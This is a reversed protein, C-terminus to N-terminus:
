LYFVRGLRVGAGAVRKLIIIMPPLSYFEAEIHKYRARLYSRSCAAWRLPPAVRRTTMSDAPAQQGVFVNPARRLENVKMFRGEM